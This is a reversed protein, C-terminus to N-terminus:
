DRLHRQWWEYNPATRKLQFPGLASIRRVIEGLQREREPNSGAWAMLVEPTGMTTVPSPLERAVRAAPRDDTVLICGRHLSLALAQAEGDDLETAFNIFSETEPESGLSLEQLAGHVLIETATLPKREIQGAASFKRVFKVEGLAIGGIKWDGGIESLEALGGWGCLLNVLTSADLVYCPM